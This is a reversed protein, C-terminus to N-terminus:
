NLALQHPWIYRSVISFTTAYWKYFDNIYQNAYLDRSPLMQQLWLRFENELFASILHWPVVSNMHWMFANQRTYVGHVTSMICNLHTYIYYGSYPQSNNWKKFFTCLYFFNLFFKMYTNGRANCFPCSYPVIHVFPSHDEMSLNWFWLVLSLM